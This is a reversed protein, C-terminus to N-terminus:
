DKLNGTGSNKEDIEAERSIKPFHFNVGKHFTISAKQSTGIMYKIGHQTLTSNLELGLEKLNTVFM